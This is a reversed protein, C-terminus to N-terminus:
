ARRAGQRKYVDLHTYSVPGVSSIAWPGLQGVMILDAMSTLQTLLLEVLSPWAIGVIDSYLERSTM